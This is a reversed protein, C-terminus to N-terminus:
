ILHHYLSLPLGTRKQIDIISKYAGNTEREKVIKQAVKDELGDKILRELSYSNLRRWSVDFEKNIDYSFTVFPSLKTIYNPPLSAIDHLEEVNTFLYGERRIADINNAYVIPLNLYYVLDHKSCTNIDIKVQEEERRKRNKLSQFVTQNTSLISDLRQTLYFATIIQVLWVLIVLYYSGVLLVIFSIVVSTFGLRIFNPTKIKDACYSIVLGGLFPTCALWFWAPIKSSHNYFYYM